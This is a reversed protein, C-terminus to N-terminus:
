SFISPFKSFVIKAYIHLNKTLAFVVPCLDKTKMMEILSTVSPKSKASKNRNLDYYNIIPPLTGNSDTIVIRSAKSKASHSTYSTQAAVVAEVPPSKLKLQTRGSRRLFTLSSTSDNTETLDGGPRIGDSFVM